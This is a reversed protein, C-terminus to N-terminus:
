SLSDLDRDTEAFVLDENTHSRIPDQDSMLRAFNIGINKAANLDRNHFLKCDENQCRRLGRIERDTPNAGICDRGYVNKVFSTDIAHFTHYRGPRRQLRTAIKYAKEFVGARAWLMFHKHVTRFNVPSRLSRWPAGTWLIHFIDTLIQTHDTRPRGTTQPPFCRDIQCLIINQLRIDM